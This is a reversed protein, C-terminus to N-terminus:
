DRNGGERVENRGKEGTGPSLNLDSSNKPALNCLLCSESRGGVPVVVIRGRGAVTIPTSSKM